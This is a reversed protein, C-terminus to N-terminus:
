VWLYISMFINILYKILYVWLYNCIRLYNGISIHHQSVHVRVIFLEKWIKWFKGAVERPRLALALAPSLPFLIPFCVVELFGTWASSM